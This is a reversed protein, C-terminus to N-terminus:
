ELIKLWDDWEEKTDGILSTQINLQDGAGIEGIVGVSLNESKEQLLNLYSMANKLERGDDFSIVVYKPRIQEVALTISDEALSARIYIVEYGKLRLYTSFIFGKLMNSELVVVKQISSFSSANHYVMGLRTQLFSLVYQFQVMTVENNNKLTLLKNSVQLVISTIVKETAYISFAENLLASTTIEDFKLLAQLLDDVLVVERDYHIENRVSNQLRNGELLQVAQGIMMGSSVKDMLWKLIQIHEETYLRHGAHNRKPAIMQYRREWARLTSPQVGIIKSVAKINYKGNLTPM